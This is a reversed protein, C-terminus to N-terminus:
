MTARYEARAGLFERVRLNNTAPGNRELESVAPQTFHIVAGLETQTMGMSRRARRIVEGTTMHM